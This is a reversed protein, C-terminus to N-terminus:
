ETKHNNAFIGYETNKIKIPNSFDSQVGLKNDSVFEGIDMWEGNQEVRERIQLGINPECLIDCFIGICGLAKRDYQVPVLAVEQGQCNSEIFSQPTCCQGDKKWLGSKIEGGFEIWKETAALQKLRSKEWETLYPTERYKGFALLMGQIDYIKNTHIPTRFIVTPIVIMERLDKM